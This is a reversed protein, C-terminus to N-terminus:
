NRVAAADAKGIAVELGLSEQTEELVQDILAEELRKRRM